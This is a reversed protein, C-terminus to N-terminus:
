NKNIESLVKSYLEFKDAKDVLASVNLLPMYEYINIEGTEADTTYFFKREINDIKVIISSGKKKVKEYAICPSPSEVDLFIDDTYLPMNNPQCGFCSYKKNDCNISAERLAALFTEHINFERINRLYMLYERTGKKEDELRPCNLIYINWQVDSVNAPIASVLIVVKVVRDQKSMDALSGPRIARKYIQIESSKTQPPSFMVVLTANMFNYGVEGVASIIVVKLLECKINERSNALKMIQEREEMKTEGILVGFKIKNENLRRALEPLISHRTIYIIAMRKTKNIYDITKDYKEKVGAICLNFSENSGSVNVNKGYKVTFERSDTIPAKDERSQRIEVMRHTMYTSFEEKSMTCLDIDPGELNPIDVTEEESPTYYILGYLRRMFLEKNKLSGDNKTFVAKFDEFTEPIIPNYRGGTDVALTNLFKLEFPDNRIPTGTFFYIRNTANLKKLFEYFLNAYISGHVTKHFLADCEDVIFLKNHVYRINRNNKDTLIKELKIRIEMDTLSEENEVMMQTYSDSKSLSVFKVNRNMYNEVNQIGKKGFKPIMQMLVRKVYEHQTKHILAFTTKGIAAADAIMPTYTFTKGSGCEMYALLGKSNKIQYKRTFEFLLFQHFLLTSDLGPERRISNIVENIQAFMNTTNPEILVLKRKPIEKEESDEM